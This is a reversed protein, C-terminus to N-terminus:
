LLNLELKYYLNVDFILSNVSNEDLNELWQILENITIIEEIAKFYRKKIIKMGCSKKEIYNQM